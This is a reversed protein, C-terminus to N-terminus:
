VVVGYVVDIIFRQHHLGDLIMKPRNPLAELTSERSFGVPARGVLKKSLPSERNIRHLSERFHVLLSPASFTAERAETFHNEM